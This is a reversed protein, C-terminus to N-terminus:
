RAMTRYNGESRITELIASIFEPINFRIDEGFFSKRVDCAHADMKRFRGLRTLTEQSNETIFIDITAREKNRPLLPGCTPVEIQINIIVL